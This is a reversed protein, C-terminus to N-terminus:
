TLAANIHAQRAQNARILMVILLEASWELGTRLIHLRTVALSHYGPRVLLNVEHPLLNSSANSQRTPQRTLSGLWGLHAVSCTVLLAKVNCAVHIPCSRGQWDLHM